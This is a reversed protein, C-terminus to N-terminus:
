ALIGKGGKQQGPDQRKELAHELKKLVLHELETRSATTPGVISVEVGSASDIASVKVSNGLTLFEFYVGTENPPPAM